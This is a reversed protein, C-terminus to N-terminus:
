ELIQRLLFPFRRYKTGATSVSFHKQGPIVNLTGGLKKSLYEAHSLPCYPDNDSHILVFRKAKKKILEYNLPKKFLDNLAEWGLTGKFAGILFCTDVCINEDLKELLGLCAVAGSSHGVMISESDFSWDTRDLIFQSYREISPRDSEPLDPVWVNWDRQELEKKLWGFWNKRSNGATGHLILANNM